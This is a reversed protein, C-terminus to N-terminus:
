APPAEQFSQHLQAFLSPRALLEDPTGSDVFRGGDLCVIRDAVQQLFEPNHDVLIITMGKFADGRVVEAIEQASIQDVGTTPEDILLVSPRLLLARTLALLRRQGGSWLGGSAERTFSLDLPDSLGDGKAREALVSWFGTRRCAAEIEEDTADAKALQFNARITDTIYLPFQSVRVVVRRLSELTVDRVDQAGIRICGAQPDYLRMVLGLVTSKGMGLRASIAWTEGAGFTHTVADLIKRGGPTYSFTVGDLAVANTETRLESAGPRAKIEPETELLDLVVKVQPWSINIGAFFAVFQQVPRLAQPILLVIAVIAGATKPAQIPGSPLLSLLTVIIAAQLFPTTSSNFVTNIANFFAATIKARAHQGLRRGFAQARQPHAGMLQVEIPSSGSNIFENQVGVFADRLATASARLHKSLMWGVVPLVVLLALLVIMWSTPISTAAALQSVLAVVALVFTIIQVFMSRYLECLMQQAGQSFQIVTASTQGLEHAAHYSPGLTLIKDHLSQQLHRTIRVDANASTFQAAFSAFIWVVVVGLFLWALTKLSEPMLLAGLGGRAKAEHPKAPGSSADPAPREGSEPPSPSKPQVGPPEGEGGATLKNLQQVIRGLLLPQYLTLLSGVLLLVVGLTFVGRAKAVVRWGWRFLRGWPIPESKSPPRSPVEGGVPASAPGAGSPRAQGPRQPASKGPAADGRGHPKPAEPKDPM